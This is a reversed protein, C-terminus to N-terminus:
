TPQNDAAAALAYSEQLQESTMALAASPVTKMLAYDGLFLADMGTKLFCEVAQEPRYVIPEGRINFSTNLVVPVGTIRGFEEVLRHFRPNHKRSVSQVRGTGDVHTVAPIL